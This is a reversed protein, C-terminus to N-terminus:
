DRGSKRRAMRGPTRRSGPRRACSGSEYARIVGSQSAVAFGLEVIEAESCCRALREFTADDVTGGSALAEAYGVAAWEKASLADGRGDVLAERECRGIGLEELRPAGEPVWEPCGIVQAMRVRVLHKLRPSLVGGDFITWYFDSWAELVDPQSALFKL